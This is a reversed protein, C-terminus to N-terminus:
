LPHPIADIADDDSLTNLQFQADPGVYLGIDYHQCAACDRSKRVQLKDNTQNMPPTESKPKPAYPPLTQPPPEISAWLASLPFHM